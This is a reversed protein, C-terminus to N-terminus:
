AEPDKLLNYEIAKSKAFEIEKSLSNHIDVDQETGWDSFIRFTTYGRNKKIEVRARTKYVSRHSKDSIPFCTSFMGSLTKETYVTIILCDFEKIGFYKRGGFIVPHKKTPKLEKM